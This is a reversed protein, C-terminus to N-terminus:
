WLTNSERASRIRGLRALSNEGDLLHINIALFTPQVECPESLALNAKKNALSAADAARDVALSLGLCDADHTLSNPLLLQHLLRNYRCDGRATDEDPPANTRFQSGTACHFMAFLKPLDDAISLETRVCYRYEQPSDRHATNSLANPTWISNSM